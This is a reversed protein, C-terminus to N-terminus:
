FGQMTYVGEQIGVTQLGLITEKEEIEEREQEELEPWQREALKYVLSNTWIKHMESTNKVM